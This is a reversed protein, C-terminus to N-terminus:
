AFRRTRSATEEPARSAQSGGGVSGATGGPVLISPDDGLCGTLTYNHNFDIGNATITQTANASITIQTSSNIITITAGAPIGAGTVTWGVKLGTTYPYIGTIINSGSTQNGTVYNIQPCGPQNPYPPIATWTNAVPDYIEGTNSWNATLGPGSYEGGALWFKGNPLVQSAFYLRATLASALNTWTGNIYSGTSDPTLQMWSQGDYSQVLLTGDTMQVM